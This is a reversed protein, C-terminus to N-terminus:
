PVAFLDNVADDDVVVDCSAEDSDFNEVGGLAGVKGFGQLLEGELHRRDASRGRGGVLSGSPM